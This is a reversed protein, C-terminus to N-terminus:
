EGVCALFAPACGYHTLSSQWILKVGKISAKIEEVFPDATLDVGGGSSPDCETDVASALLVRSLTLILLAAPGSLTGPRVSLIQGM